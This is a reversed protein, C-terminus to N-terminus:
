KEAEAKRKTWDPFPAAGAGLQQHADAPLPYHASQARLWYMQKNIANAGYEV